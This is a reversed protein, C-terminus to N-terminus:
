RPEYRLMVYASRGPQNFLYATEYEKDFLNEIRGQLRWDRNLRYEARLDATAYAGMKRTNAVDDYRSGAGRLTAGASWAGFDRDASLTASQHARRPLVNGYNPGSQQNEPDLLTLSASLNWDLLRTSAVTEIGRIRASSINQPRFTSDLVILDKGRTEFINVSWRGNGAKGALGFDLSRSQEPRLNPNGFGFPFYLQNFTPAKFATGYSATLRLAPTWSYGWAVGGTNKTGFQDNDDHRLSMQLDHGGLAALYQGFIATNRRSAVTYATTSDIHDNQWDLGAVLQHGNALDFDNQWSFTDRKTNFRSAFVGNSFNDSYDQNQGVRVTSRWISLPSFNLSAGLVQQVTHSSNFFGDYDNRGRARLWNVEVETKGDFRWGARVRGARNSYGDKDPEVTFCAAIFSGKCSNFADTDHGSLGMSYWGGTGIPGSLSAAAQVTGYSGGGIMLTPRHTAGGKRTFIQIVGGIAESGYLSSRPGRVVEIRDILEVPIDQFAATGATASGIKVGDLLVLVHDSNAGRLFVNTLKGSGGNNAVTVGAQGTLLDGVSRAQSREIEARTIVTVPVLTEDATRATRTATVVLTDMEYPKEEAAFAAPIALLSVAALSIRSLM